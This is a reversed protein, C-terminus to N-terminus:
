CDTDVQNRQSKMREIIHTLKMDIDRLLHLALDMERECKALARECKRLGNGRGAM